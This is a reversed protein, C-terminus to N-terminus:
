VGGKVVAMKDRYRQAAKAIVEDGIEIGYIAELIEKLVAVVSEFGAMQGQFMDDMVTAVAEQITSLPAEINTGSKQDGLVALFERNPPIVAGTALRPISIQSLPKINIGWSKGGIAPVWSPISLRVKNAQNILRNLGRIIFNIMGEFFGVVGNASNRTISKIGNWVSIWAARFKENTNWLTIIAAVLGAILMAVFAIPNGKMVTNVAIQSLKLGENATRFANVATIMGQIMTVVNWALFGVGIGAVISLITPGNEIICDVFSDVHEGFAEWDIRETWGQLAVTVGEIRPILNELMPAGAKASFQRWAENLNGQVNEWGDAERAAQGMAGSLEQADLVMQLLTKQKQIETLDNYKQGFLEMAAANRTTETCSVGLAADNEFNGKMFSQLQETTSELSRDYYAAGDAAAQLAQKMLELSEATDGGSSRAFAYIQSGLTNLRTGLIGSNDAIDEIADSATDKLEGFAQAFQSSEAKVAAASEIFSTAIDGVRSSIETLAGVILQGAVNGRVVDAFSIAEEGAQEFADGVKRVKDELKGDVASGLGKGLKKLDSELGSNDLQTGINISGDYNM